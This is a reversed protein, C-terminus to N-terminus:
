SESVGKFRFLKQEKYTTTLIYILVGESAADQYLGRLSEQWDKRKCYIHEDEL